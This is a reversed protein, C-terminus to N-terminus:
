GGIPLDVIEEVPLLYRLDRPRIILSLEVSLEEACQPCAILRAEERGDPATIAYLSSEGVKGCYDCPELAESIRKLSFM